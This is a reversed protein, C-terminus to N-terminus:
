QAGGQGAQMKSLMQTRRIQAITKARVLRLLVGELCLAVICFAFSWWVYVGYGGMAFFDSWSSWYLGWYMM